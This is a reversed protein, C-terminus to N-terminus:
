QEEGSGCKLTKDAIENIEKYMGDKFIDTVTDSGVWIYRKMNCATAYSWIKPGRYFVAHTATSGEAAVGGNRDEEVSAEPGFGFTNYKEGLCRM